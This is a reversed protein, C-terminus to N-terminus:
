RMKSIRFCFVEFINQDECTLQRDHLLALLLDVSTQEAIKFDTAYSPMPRTPCPGVQQDSVMSVQNLEM